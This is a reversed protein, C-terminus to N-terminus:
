PDVCQFNNSAQPNRRRRSAARVKVVSQSHGLCSPLLPSPQPSPTSSYRLDAHSQAAWPKVLSLSPEPVPGLLAFLSAPFLSALPLPAARAPCRQQFRSSHENPSSASRDLLERTGAMQLFGDRGKNRSPHTVKAPTLTQRFRAPDSAMWIISRSTSPHQQWLDGTKQEGGSPWASRAARSLQALM